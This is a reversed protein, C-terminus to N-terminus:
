STIPVCTTKTPNMKMENLECWHETRKLDARRKIELDNVSEATATLTRDDAHIDADRLQAESQLDNLFLKWLFPGLSSGQPVGSTM